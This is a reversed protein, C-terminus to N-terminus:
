RWLQFTVLYTGEWVLKGLGNGFWEADWDELWNEWAM